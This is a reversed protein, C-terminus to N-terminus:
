ASVFQSITAALKGYLPYSGNKRYEFTKKSWSLVIRKQTEKAFFM